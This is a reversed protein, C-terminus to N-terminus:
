CHNGALAGHHTGLRQIHLNWCAWKACYDATYAATTGVCLDPLCVQAPQWGRRFNCYAHWKYAPTMLGKAPCRDALCPTIHLHQSGHSQRISKRTHQLCRQAIGRAAARFQSWWAGAKVVRGSGVVRAGLLHGPGGCSASLSRVPCDHVEHLTQCLAGTAWCEALLSSSRLGENM